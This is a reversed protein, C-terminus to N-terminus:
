STKQSTAQIKEIVEDIVKLMIEDDKFVRNKLIDLREEAKKQIDVISVFVEDRLGSLDASAKYYILFLACLENVTFEKAINNFLSIIDDDFANLVESAEYHMSEYSLDTMDAILEEYQNKLKEREMQEETSITDKLENIIQSQLNDTKM